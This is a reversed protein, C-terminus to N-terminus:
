GVKKFTTGPESGFNTIPTGEPLLRVLADFQVVSLTASFHVFTAYSISVTVRDVVKPNRIFKVDDIKKGELFKGLTSNKESYTGKRVTGYVNALECTQVGTEIERGADIAANASAVTRISTWGSTNAITSPGEGTMNMRYAAICAEVGYKAAAKRTKPSTKSSLTTETMM